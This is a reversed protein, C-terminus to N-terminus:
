WWWTGPVQTGESATPEAWGFPRSVCSLPGTPAGWVFPGQQVPLPPAATRGPASFAAETRGPALACPSPGRPSPARPRPRGNAAAGCAPWAPPRVQRLAPAAAAAAAPRPCPGPRVLRSGRAPSGRREILAGPPPARPRALWTSGSSSPLLTCKPAWWRSVSHRLGGEPFGWRRAATVQTVSLHLPAQAVAGPALHGKWPQSTWSPALPVTSQHWSSRPKEEM